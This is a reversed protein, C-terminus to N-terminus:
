PGHMDPDNVRSEPLDYYARHASQIVGRVKEDGRSLRDFVHPQCHQRPLFILKSLLRTELAVIKDKKEVSVVPNISVDLFSVSPLDLLQKLEDVCQSLCNSSLDVIISTDNEQSSHPLIDSSFM